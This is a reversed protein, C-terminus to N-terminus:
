FNSSSLANGLIVVFLLFFLLWLVLGICAMILSAKFYNAKSPNSNGGFAYVFIMVINVIPILMILMSILWEKTSVVPVAYNNQYPVGGYNAQSAEPNNNEYL